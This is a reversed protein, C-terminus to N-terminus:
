VIQSILSVDAGLSQLKEPLNEYGRELHYTKFVRTEGEAVLGALILSASARLDTAEVSAGLLKTSGKICAVKSNKLRINANLKKLEEVHKFRQEFINETVSSEGPLQTMYAMFQAQLDTPFGPYAQTELHVNKLSDKTKISISQSGIKLLCGSEELKNILSQLDTPRCHTVEVEGFTIAGALLLTGAEIRDPIVSHPNKQNLSSVGEIIFEREGSYKIQAGMSNLYSVLDLIEPECAVNCLKTKGKAFVSALILNETGGVTPFDFQITSGKLGEKAEAIITGGEEKIDAGLARLGKLHLDIPREGIVCGGPFCLKAKQYKALLPGLCLISARMSKVLHIDPETGATGHNTIQVKDEETKVSLGLFKLIDLAVTTDKLQPVNHFEHVGKALLTSFFLPLVSNKAGSTKVSGQLSKGGQVKIYPQSM